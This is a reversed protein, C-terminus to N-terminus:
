VFNWLNKSIMFEKEPNEVNITNPENNWSLVERTSKKIVLKKKLKDEYFSINGMNTEMIKKIFTYKDM